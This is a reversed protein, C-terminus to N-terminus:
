ASLELPKIWRYRVAPGHETGISPPLLVYGGLGRYDVHGSASAKNGKGTPKRFLHHGHHRQTLAHGILGDRWSTKGLMVGGVAAPGDVDVVDFKIGTPAGINHDPHM